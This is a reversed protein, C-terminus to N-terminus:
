KLPVWDPWRYKDYIWVFDRNTKVNGSSWYFAEKGTAFEKAAKLTSAEQWNHNEVHSDAFAFTTTDGHFIAFGDVWRPPSADLVWTGANFDRPDAEELFVFSNAPQQIGSLKTHLTKVGAGWNGGAMTECKSYSDYAWGRGPMLNRTRLDGPCHYAGASPCYNWLPSKQLADMVLQQAKDKSMSTTLDSALGLWFGGGSLSVQGSPGRYSTPLLNDNFDHAYMIWATILQKENSRCVANTAKLKAKALAPLLMGALIAIIAIVVLLEIL